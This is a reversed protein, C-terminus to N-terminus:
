CDDWDGTKISSSFGIQKVSHEKIAAIAKSYARCYIGTGFPKPTPPRGDFACSWITFFAINNDDVSFSYSGQVLVLSM